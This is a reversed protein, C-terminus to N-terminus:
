CQPEPPIPPPLQHYLLPILLPLSDITSDNGPHVGSISRDNLSTNNRNRSYTWQVFAASYRTDGVPDYTSADCYPKPLRSRRDASSPLSSGM